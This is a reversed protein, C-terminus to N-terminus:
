TASVAGSLREADAIADVGVTMDGPSASVETNCFSFKLTSLGSGNLTAGDDCLFFDASTFANGEDIVRLGDFSDERPEGTDEM